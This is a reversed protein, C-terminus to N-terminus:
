ISQITAKLKHAKPGPTISHPRGYSNQHGLGFCSIRMDVM